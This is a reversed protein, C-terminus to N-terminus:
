RYTREFKGPERYPTRVKYVSEERANTKCSERQSQNELQNCARIQLALQSTSPAPEAAVAAGLSGLLLTTALAYRIM